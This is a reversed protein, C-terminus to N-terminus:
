DHDFLNTITELAKQNNSYTLKFFSIQTIWEFLLAANGATPVVWAQDLLLKIAKIPDLKELIFDVSKDYHIFIFEHVPYIARYVDIQHKAPLFRVSKEPSIYNLTKQELAPYLSALLEMSTQKVSMAIPFPYANFTNRDIPVFDDSILQYGITQLLAAITTKGHNPPASFLITKKGNTIASAHVTMLWDADTKNHIVNILFMFILGKVLHTEDKTWSGKVQGNFRFVIREQYAFLEFVPMEDSRETTEFHSILPHLYHEFHRTEYAFSILQDGLRYNHISFPSFKHNDLTELFQLGHKSVEDVKNMKAADLRVSLVFKLSQAKSIAYRTAFEKAITEAKYGKTTKRFVFWAPEELQLYLNSNQFWVLYTQGIRKKLYPIAPM